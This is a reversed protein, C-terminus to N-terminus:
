QTGTSRSSRRTRKGSRHHHSKKKEATPTPTPAQAPLDTNFIDAVTKWSGDAQKKWVEVYKGRDTTFNERADKTTLQYVGMVYALDGSRAVDVKSAQWSLSTDPGLLAAWAARISQKDGVAPANPALLSADDSYYSVTADVNRAAAAKSWQADLDRLASEDAARTDKPAQQGCGSAFSVLALCGCVIAAQIVNRAYGHTNERRSFM